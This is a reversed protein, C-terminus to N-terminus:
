NTFYKEIQIFGGWGMNVIADKLFSEAEPYTNFQKAEHIHASWNHEGDYYGVGMSNVTKLIFITKM